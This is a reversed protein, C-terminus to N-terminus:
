KLQRAFNQNKGVEFFRWTMFGTPRDAAFDNIKTFKPNGVAGQINDM